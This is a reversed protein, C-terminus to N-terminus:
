DVGEVVLVVDTYDTDGVTSGIKVSFSRTATDPLTYPIAISFSRDRGSTAGSDIDMARESVGAGGGNIVINLTADLIFLNTVTADTSPDLTGTVHILVDGVEEPTIQAISLDASLGAALVTGTEASGWKKVWGKDSSHVSEHQTTYTRLKGTSTRDSGFHVDGQLPTTPDSDQPVLRVAARTPSSLDGVFLGAYGNVANGKVGTADGTGVGAVGAGTTTALPGSVGRVGIGDAHLAEGQLGPSTAFAAGRGTVGAQSSSVSTGLVGPANAGGTATVGPGTGEGTAQIGPSDGSSGECVIAPTGGSGRFTAFALITGTANVGVELSPGAGANIFIGAPGAGSNVGSVAPGTSSNVAAVTPDAGNSSVDLVTAGGTSVAKVTPESAGTSAVDLATAAGLQDLKMTPNAADNSQFLTARGTGSNVVILTTVGSTNTLQLAGHGAGENTQATADGAGTINLGVTGAPVNTIIIKRFTATAQVDLTDSIDNGLIVPGKAELQGDVDLDGDITVNGGVGMSEVGITKFVPVTPLVLTQGTLTLADTVLVWVLVTGVPTVPAPNGNPVAVVTMGGGLGAFEESTDIFIYSDSIAALLLPSAKSVSVQLGKAGNGIPDIWVDVTRSSVGLVNSLFVERPNIVGDESWTGLGQVPTTTGPYLWSGVLASSARLHEAQSARNWRAPERGLYNLEPETPIDDDLWGTGQRPASPVIVVGEEAWTRSTFSNDPDRPYDQPAAM